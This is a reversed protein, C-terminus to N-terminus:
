QPLATSIECASQPPAPGAPPPHAAKIDPQATPPHPEPQLLLPRPELGMLRNTLQRLDNRRKLDSNEIMAFGLGPGVDRTPIFCNAPSPPLPQLLTLAM